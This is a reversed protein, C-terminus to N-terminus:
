AKTRLLDNRFPSDAGVVVTLDDIARTMGVYALKRATAPDSKVGIGCVVVSRYELGKASHITSLIVPADAEGARDRNSTQSPDTVWFYPLGAAGLGAAVAAGFKPSDQLEGHLVAISRSASRTGYYARVADVVRMVEDARDRAAIVRPPSGSRESATAPIIAADEDPDLAAQVEISRDATLFDYAFELIQKTNRYNTRMLRTRGQAKVGADKWRFDKRYINQASDAVIILDQEDPDTSELLRVCFELAETDFDQAEDILVARYRPAGQKDLAALAARNVPGSGHDYGPHEEGADVIAKSMLKDLNRVEVNPCGDLEKRLQSALSKTYCTVLIRKSPLLRSLLRARYVLVMTKGSGAVGRIVRHGSGLSKALREQQRDMVKLVDGDAAAASFLAGQSPRPNIVTDPHVIARIKVMESESLPEDLVGGTAHAFVRLLPAPESNSSAADLDAKFLCSSMDVLSDLRREAAGEKSLGTFAALAGVPIDRLDPQKRLREVLREAFRLSTERPNRAAQEVGGVAIRLEGNIVGLLNTRGDGKLTEIVLVGYRPDLVVLDPRQGTADYPPEHWVTVDDDLATALATAVRQVARPVSKDSRLAEPILVAM